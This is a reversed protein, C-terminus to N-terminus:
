TKFKSFKPHSKIDVAGSSRKPPETKEVENTDADTPEIVEGTTEDILHDPHTANAIADQIAHAAKSLVGENKKPPTKKASM